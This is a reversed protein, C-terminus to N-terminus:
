RRAARAARAPTRSRAISRPATRGGAHVTRSIADFYKGARRNMEAEFDRYSTVVAEGLSTLTSGGGGSGGVSTLVLPERFSHNLSDLLQWARRYSMKLDRAAQSLSGSERMKELLAIKGPGIAHHRDFDIRLTIRLKNNM